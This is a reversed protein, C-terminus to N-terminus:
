NFAGLPVSNFRFDRLVYFLPSSAPISSELLFLCWFHQFCCGSIQTRAPKLSHHLHPPKPIVVAAGAVLTAWLYSLYRKKKMALQKLTSPYSIKYRHTCHMGVWARQPPISKFIHLNALASALPCGQRDQGQRLCQGCSRENALPQALLNFKILFHNLTNDLYSFFIFAM